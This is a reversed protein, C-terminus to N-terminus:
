WHLKVAVQVASWAVKEGAKISLSLNDLAVGSANEYRLTVNKLEIEGKARGIEIECKM